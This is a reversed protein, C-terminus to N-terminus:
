MHGLAKGLLAGLIMLTPVGLLGLIFWGLFSTRSTGLSNRHLNKRDYYRSRNTM